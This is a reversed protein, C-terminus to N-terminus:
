RVISLLMQELGGEYLTVMIRHAEPRVVATAEVLSCWPDQWRGEHILWQQIVMAALKGCLEYLIRWPKKNRRDDIQGHEKWLRFLREVQWRLRLSFSAEPLSLRARPVNTVVITWGALSLMEESPERGHAQATKRIRKRRQETVEESVHVMILRVPLRAQKGV